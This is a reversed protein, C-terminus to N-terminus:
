KRVLEEFIQNLQPHAKLLSFINSLQLMENAHGDIACGRMTCVLLNKAFSEDIQDNSADSLKKFLRFLGKYLISLEPTSTSADPSWQPILDTTM